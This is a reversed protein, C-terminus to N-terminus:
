SQALFKVTNIVSYKIDHSPLWGVSRIKKTDLFIFPNDGIWGRDGGATTIRPTCAMEQCIWSASDLVTCYQNTGLNFIEFLSDVLRPVNLLASICDEVHIYSKRQMGNGLIHLHSPDNRLQRYFDLVHGHSYRPGLVSVFRFIFSRLGFGTSFASILGECALKSAGYLSTQIPFSSTEPTPLESAEGYVSGTSSFVFLSADMNHSADLLNYTAITNQELDRFTNQLGYRVDANAALHYVEAGTPISRRLLERDLLDGSIFRFRSNNAANSLNLLSGTSLNDYGIVDQGSALLKDVLNSGIFGAAGSVFAVM